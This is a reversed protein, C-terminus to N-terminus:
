QITIDCGDSDKGRSYSTTAIKFYRGEKLASTIPDTESVHVHISEIIKRYEKGMKLFYTAEAKYM